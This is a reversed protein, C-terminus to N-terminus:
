TSPWVNNEPRLNLRVHLRLLMRHVYIFMRVNNRTKKKHKILHYLDICADGPISFHIGSNTFCETTCLM